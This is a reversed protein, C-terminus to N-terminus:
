GLPATGQSTFSKNTRGARSPWVQLCDTLEDNQVRGDPNGAASLDLGVAHATQVVCLAFVALATSAEEVCAKAEDTDTWDSTCYKECM